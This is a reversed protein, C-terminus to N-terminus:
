LNQSVWEYWATPKTHGTIQELAVKAKAAGVGVHQGWKDMVLKILKPVARKIELEVAVEVARLAVADVHDTLAMLIAKEARREEHFRLRAINLVMARVRWDLHRRVAKYIEKRASKDTMTLLAAEAADLFPRAQQDDVDALVPDGLGAYLIALAGTKDDQAAYHDYLAVIAGNDGRGKAAAFERVAQAPPASRKAAHVVGTGAATLLLVACALGTVRTLRSRVSHQAEIAPLPQM